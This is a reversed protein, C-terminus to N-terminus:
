SSATPDIDEHYPPSLYWPRPDSQPKAFFCAHADRFTQECWRDLESLTALIEVGASSHVKVPRGSASVQYLITLRKQLWSMSTAAGYIEADVMQRLAEHSVLAESLQRDLSEADM